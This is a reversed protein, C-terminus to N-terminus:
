GDDGIPEIVLSPETRESSPPLEEAHPEGDDVSGDRAPPEDDHVLEEAPLLEEDDALGPADTVPTEPGAAAETERAPDQSPIPEAGLGVRDILPETRRTRRPLKSPSPSAGGAKAERRRLEEDLDALAQLRDPTLEVTEARAAAPPSPKSSPAPPETGTSSQRPTPPSPEEPQNAPNWSPTPPAEEWSQVLAYGRSSGRTAHASPTAHPPPSPSPAAAPMAPTGSWDHGPDSRIADPVQMSGTPWRPPPPEFADHWRARALQPCVDAWEPAHRRSGLVVALFPNPHAPRVECRWCLVLRERDTDIWMTDCVPYLLEAQTRQHADHVYFAYPQVDSLIVTRVPVGRLLGELRLLGDVPIEDLRMDPGAANFVSYDFGSPVERLWRRTETPRPALQVTQRADRTVRMVHRSWLPVEVSPTDPVAQLSHRVEGIQVSFPLVPSPETARAQGVLMVDVGVKRPAFDSAYFLEGDYGGTADDAVPSQQLDLRLPGDQELTFTAKLVVTYTPEPSRWSIGGVSLPTFSAVHM